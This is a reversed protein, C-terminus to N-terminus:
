SPVVGDVWNLIRRYLRDTEPAVFVHHGSTPVVHLTFDPCRAYDAPLLHPPGTMDREGVSLFVPVGIAGLEERVNGPMMAHMGINALVNNMVERLARGAPTDKEHRPAPLYPQAGFRVRAFEVVRSRGGDPTELAARLDDDLYEPLGTTGFCFLLMATFDPSAVQHVASIMAGASHGTGIVPLGPLPPLGGLGGEALRGRIDALARINGQAVAETTLAYGDEPRTSDGVGVPDIAVVVHGAAVLAAALSFAEDDPNQPDHLDYYGRAVGGGPVCWFLLPRDALRSPVHLDLALEIAGAGPAIEGVDVRLVHVAHRPAARSAAVATM